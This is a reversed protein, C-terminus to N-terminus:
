TKSLRNSLLTDVGLLLIAAWLLYWWVRQTREQAEPTLPLSAAAGGQGEGARGVAAAVVEQPDVATLDSESLDVNSAVVTADADSAQRRIEYFGQEVLELVEPGEGNLAVRNRSPTLAIRETIAASPAVNASPDLVQGVTMWPPAESYVALHRVVRHIFPLFVPKLPLDSWSLDLTSAWVIVRGNGLKREVVAPAGADFRALVQAPVSPGLTLTRYGYFRAASFNGSRPSRFPEFVPHGYELAAVRAPDGRSRDVPAGLTGPLVGTSSGAWTTYPGLAVFLGGGREVFRALRSALAETVTVDNLLVVSAQRLDDESIGDARRVQTEFRPASGISLARALYLSAEGGGSREVIMVRVPAAPSVVFNFQNDRALADSALRVTGRMNRSAITVPAFTVSASGNAEVDVRQSEIARGGIDLTLEVGQMPKSGRNLVGATVAVREQREFTTRSLSVPSASLNHTEERAGVAVPTLKAGEPLRVGEAGRWGSAQFDTILVAERRPLTSESLISGAVKLAPAYRTSGASPEATAIASELRGRESTSRVAVDANISFLVISARDSSALGNVVDRAAARARQWHDGYAMSYSQDLLIVVERAGTGAMAAADPRFLFPRSFAAVLLALAALRVFLLTWNHIRRRRVSQYPVRRVFMLSPFKVVQKRERQILHILVPVALGALGLLFLPALFSM